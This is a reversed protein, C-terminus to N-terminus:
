SEGKFLDVVFDWLRRCNTESAEDANYLLNGSVGNKSIFKAYLNQLKNALDTLSDNKEDWILIKESDSASLANKMQHDDKAGRWPIVIAPKGLAEAEALTSAGGRTVLLDGAAYFPSIDWMRPISTVGRSIEAPEGASPDIVLFNWSALADLAALNTLMDMMSESGLSGTMVSVVPGDPLNVGLVKFADRGSMSKLPRVPVGVRTYRAPALPECDKWGSAVPVGLASAIKTVRGALANQEHMVSRIGRMLGVVLAPFSVYGGFMLCLDPKARKMFRNAQVFGLLLEGWRKLSRAGSVGLPSGSAGLVLPEINLSRYIELEVGRSGSVYNLEVGPKERRVWDGFAIAPFIHGGTGGAVIMMSGVSRGSM